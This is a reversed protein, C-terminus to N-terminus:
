GINAQWGIEITTFTLLHGFGPSQIRGPLV